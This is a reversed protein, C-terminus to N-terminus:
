ARRAAVEWLAKARLYKGTTRHQRAVLTWGGSLLADVRDGDFFRKPQGDVLYYGPELQPHGVAGFHRDETSNLRCLLLGGPPLAQRIRGVIQLTEAWGFYHLSLSAVVAGAEGEGVPLPDRVDQCVIRAAPVRLRAAAVSAASLDFAVVSLGARVLTATDAGTGCGVELVPRGAAEAQLLALWPDLWPDHFM